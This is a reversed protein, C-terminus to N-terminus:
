RNQYWENVEDTMQDGGLSMWQEVFEDFADLPLEGTIVGVLMEDEITNLDTGREVMTPTPLGQFESIIGDIKTREGLFLRAETSLVSVPDEFAAAQMADREEEPISGWEDLQYQLAKYTAMPDSFGGGRTGLPGTTWFNFWIGPRTLKGDEDFDYDAGRWGHMRRWPDERLPIRWNTLEIWEKAYKFDKPCCFVGKALPNETHKGKGKPGSPVDAFIWVTNPDNQIADRNAGWSPTIHMGCNGAALDQIGDSTSLTFFDKRLMGDAYWQRLIALAEKAEPRTGDYVLGDGLKGWGL